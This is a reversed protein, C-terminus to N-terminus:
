SRYVSMVMVATAEEEEQEESSRRRERGEEWLQITPELVMVSIDWSISESSENTSLGTLALIGSTSM